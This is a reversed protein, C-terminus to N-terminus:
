STNDSPVDDATVFLYPIDIEKLVQKVLTSKGVQRPGSLVQIKNRKELLRNKLEIFHYRKYM